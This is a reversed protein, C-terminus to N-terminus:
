QDVELELTTIIEGRLAQCAMNVLARDYGALEHRLEEMACDLALMVECRQREVAGDVNQRIRWTATKTLKKM